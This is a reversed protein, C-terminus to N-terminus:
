SSTEETHRDIHPHSREWVVAHTGGQHDMLVIM